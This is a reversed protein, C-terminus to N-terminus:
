QWKEGDLLSIIGWPKYIALTTNIVYIAVAIPLVLVLFTGVGGPHSTAITNGIAEAIRARLGFISATALLLSLVLKVAVWYYRFLGWHTGIGLLLGTTLVAVNVPIIFTDSFVGLALYAVRLQESDRTELGTMALTLLAVYLGLAGVSVLVHVLLVFQRVRPRMIPVGTQTSPRLPTVVQANDAHFEAPVPKKASFDIQAM